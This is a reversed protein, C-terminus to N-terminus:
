SGNGETCTPVRHPSDGECTVECCWQLQRRAKQQFFGRHFVSYFTFRITMKRSATTELYSGIKAEASEEPGM